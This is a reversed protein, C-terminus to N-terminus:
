ASGGIPRLPVVVPPAFGDYTTAYVHTLVDGLHASCARESPGVQWDARGQCIPCAVARSRSLPVVTTGQPRLDRSTATM